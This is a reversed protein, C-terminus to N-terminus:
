VPYSKGREYDPCRTANPREPRTCVDGYDFTCTDCLFESRGWGGGHRSRTLRLLFFALVGGGILIPLSRVALRGVMLALFCLVVVTGIVPAYKRFFSM